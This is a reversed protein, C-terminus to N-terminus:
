VGEDTLRLLKEFCPVRNRGRNQGSDHDFSPESVLAFLCPHTIPFFERGSPDVVSELSSTDKRRWFPSLDLTVQVHSVGGCTSLIGLEGPRTDLSHDVKGFGEANSKLRARGDLGGERDRDAAGCGGACSGYANGARPATARTSGGPGPTPRCRLCGAWRP